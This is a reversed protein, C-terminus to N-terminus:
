SGTLVPQDPVLPSVTAPLAEQSPVPLQPQVVPQPAHRLTFFFTTGQHEGKSEVWIHGHHMDIISKSIYLGLGTGQISKTLYEGEVVGFKQFLKPIDEQKIGRGNDSVATQVMENSQSLSITIKGGPPTFKLANGILNILVEKIKGPDAMVQPLSQAPPVLAITLPVHQAIPMLENIVETALIFLNVPQLTVTFRGAEIRSVNLTDNVLEILRQTSADMRELYHKQKDTLPGITDTKHLLLWLYSKMATMPTRLEHSALSILGDKMTDLSKLKDHAEQLSSYLRADQVALGVVDTFGAILDKEEPSVEQESKTMSFILVGLVEGQSLIPYVMTTKIGVVRQIASVEEESLAPYFVDAVVHTIQPTKTQIAKVCLNNSASLPIHIDKFPLSLSGIAQKAKPTDSFSVRRLTQSQKDILALVVVHYGLELYGLETLVSDVIKQSVDKFDLTNLIVKELRWLAAITEKYKPTTSYPRQFFKIFV